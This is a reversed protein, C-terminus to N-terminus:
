EAAESMSRVSASFEKFRDLSHRGQEARIGHASRGQRGLMYSGARVKGRPIPRCATAHGLSANSKAAIVAAIRDARWAFSRCRTAGSAM